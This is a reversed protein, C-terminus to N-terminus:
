YAMVPSDLPVGKEILYNQLAEPKLFKGQADLVASAPVNIATPIHGMRDPGHDGYNAATNPWGSLTDLITAKGDNIAALVDDATAKAQRGYDVLGAPMFAAPQPASPGSSVPGAERLWAQWGGDLVCVNSFGWSTLMWWARTAGMMGVTGGNSNPLCPAPRSYLVIKDGVSSVGLKSM